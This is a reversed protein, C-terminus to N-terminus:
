LPRLGSILWHGGTRSMTVEVRSGAVSPVLDQGHATTQTLFALLVVEDARARKVGLADVVVSTEIKQKKATPAVVETLLAGYDKGFSGGAADRARGLDADLSKYSYGLLDPLLTRAAKPAAVSAAVVDARVARHRLALVDLVGALVVAVLLAIITKRTIWSTM